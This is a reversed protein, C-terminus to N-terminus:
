AIIIRLMSEMSVSLISIFATEADGLHRPPVYQVANRQRNINLPYKNSCFGVSQIVRIEYGSIMDSMMDNSTWWVVLISIVNVNLM